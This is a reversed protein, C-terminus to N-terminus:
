DYCMTGILTDVLQRRGRRLGEQSAWQVAMLERQSLAAGRGLGEMWVHSGQNVNREVKQHVFSWCVGSESSNYTLACMVPCSSMSDGPIPITLM